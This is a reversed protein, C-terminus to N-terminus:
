PETRPPPLAAGAYLAAELRRLRAELETEVRSLPRPPPPPAAAAAAAAAEAAAQKAAELMLLVSRGQAVMDEVTRRFDESDVGSNVAVPGLTITKLNPLQSLIKRLTDLTINADEELKQVQTRHLGSRRALEEQSFGHEQRAQRIQSGLM